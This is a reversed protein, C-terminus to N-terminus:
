RAPLAFVEVLIEHVLRPNRHKRRSPFQDTSGSSIDVSDLPVGRSSTKWPRATSSLWCCVPPASFFLEANAAMCRSASSQSVRNICRSRDAVLSGHHACISVASAARTCRPFHSICREVPPWCGSKTETGSRGISAFRVANRTRRQWSFISPAPAWILGDLVVYVPMMLAVLCFWITAM